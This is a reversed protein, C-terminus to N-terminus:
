ISFRKAKGIDLLLPHMAKKLKRSNRERLVLGINVAYESVSLGMDAFYKKWEKEPTTMPFRVHIAKNSSGTTKIGKLKLAKTIYSKLNRQLTTVQKELVVQSYTKM